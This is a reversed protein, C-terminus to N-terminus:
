YAYNISLHIAAIYILLSAYNKSGSRNVVIAVMVNSIVKCHHVMVATPSLSQIFSMHFTMLLIPLTHHKHSVMIMSKTSDILLSPSSVRM